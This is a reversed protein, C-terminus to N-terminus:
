PGSASPRCSCWTRSSRPAPCRPRPGSATCASASPTPPRTSPWTGSRRARTSSCWWRTRSPATAQVSGKTDQQLGAALFGADNATTWDRASGAACYRVNEASPAFVRSAAKTIGITNPCNVDAIYTTAGDVYHHRVEGNAYEGVVYLFGQFLDAYHVRALTSGSGKGAAPIDLSVKTITLGSVSPAAFASGADCFVNLAGNVAKLGFSGSLQNTLLRVGPRKAIRKAQTIYANRLTWLKSADQSNVSLRRDLGGSWDNYTVGASRTAVSCRRGRRRLRRTM